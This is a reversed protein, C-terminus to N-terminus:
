QLDREPKIVGELPRACLSSQAATAAAAPGVKHGYIASVNIIHGCLRGGTTLM